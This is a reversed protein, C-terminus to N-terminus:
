SRIVKVIRLELVCGTCIDADNLAGAVKEVALEKAFVKDQVWLVRAQVHRTKGVGRREALAKASSSDARLVTMLLEHEWFKVVNEIYVALTGARCM